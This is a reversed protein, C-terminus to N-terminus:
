KMEGRHEPAGLVVASFCSLIGLLIALRVDTAHEAIRVLKAATSPANTARNFLLEAPLAVAIYFLFTFGAIRANTTRTM